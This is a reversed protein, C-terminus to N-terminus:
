RREQPRPALQASPAPRSPPPPPIVHRGSAAPPSWSRVASFPESGASPTPPSRSLAPRTRTGAPLFPLGPEHPRALTDTFGARRPTPLAAGPCPERGVQQGAAGGGRRRAQPGRESGPGGSGENGSAAWSRCRESAWFAGAPVMLGAENTVSLHHFPTPFLGRM